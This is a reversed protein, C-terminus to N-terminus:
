SHKIIVEDRDDVRLSLLAAIAMSIGGCVIIYIPQGHFLHTLM